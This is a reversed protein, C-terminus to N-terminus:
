EGFGPALLAVLREPRKVGASRLWDLAVDARSQGEEGGLIRGARYRAAAAFSQMDCAELERAAEVLLHLAQPQHARSAAVAARILLALAVSSPQQERELLRADEEASRL